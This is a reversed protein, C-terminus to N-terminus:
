NMVLKNYGCWKDKLCDFIGIELLLCKQKQAEEDNHNQKLPLSDDGGNGVANKLYQFSNNTPLCM